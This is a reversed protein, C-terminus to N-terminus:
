IFDKNSIKVFLKALEKPTKQIDNFLWFKLFFYIGGAYFSTLLFMSDEDFQDPMHDHPGKLFNHSYMKEFMKPFDADSANKIFIKILDAHELMFSFMEEFYQQKDAYAVHHDFRNLMGDLFEKEIDLLIDKPYEYHRYFTGRNVSAENCLETISIKDVTSTQLLRLLAEKLLRKTITIRQNKQVM